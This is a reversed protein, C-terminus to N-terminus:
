GGSNKRLSRRAEALALESVEHLPMSTARSISDLDEFEPKIRLLKGARDKGLKVRVDFARGDIALKVVVSERPLVLRDWDQYRVGLTGTQEIILESIAELDKTDCMAHLVYGPRNKKFQAATIWADKAGAELIRQLSSGIIEGSVDDVNTEIVVVSDSNL